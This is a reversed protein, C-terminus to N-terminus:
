ENDRRAIFDLAYKAILEHTEKNPHADDQSVWLKMSDKYDKFFPTLDQCKIDNKKLFSSVFDYERKFPQNVLDHLEPLLVVRLAIRKKKCVDKLELFARKTHIWGENDEQYLGAYYGKFSRSPIINNIFANIRSWYFTIIRSHALFWLRSKKPTAEADNIFYFVVAMDPNYKLGKELFLNVEQETNYNGTGFNIIETPFRKNIERELIAKFIDEKEVGWGLTLSDGLFIIRYKDKKQLPYEKDRFGDSNSSVTVGMLRATKNPKHVHGILPNSSDAKLSMAYRAMEVDYILKNRLYLRILFEGCLFFIALSIIVALIEKYPVKYKM